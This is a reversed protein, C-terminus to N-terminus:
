FIVEVFEADDKTRSDMEQIEKAWLSGEEAVIIRWSAFPRGLLRSAEKLDSRAIAARVRTSSAPRDDVLVPSVASLEIGLSRAISSLEPIEGSRNSGFRWDAGVCIEVLDNAAQTLKQIFLEPSTKSFEKTFNITLVADVGLEEFLRRKQVPTMLLRPAYRPRLARIPHPAFTVVVASGGSRRAGRIARGIVAQHGLHIGDFMGIALHTPGAVFALDEINYLLRM